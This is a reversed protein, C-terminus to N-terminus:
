SKRLLHAPVKYEDEDVAKIMQLMLRIRRIKWGVQATEAPSFDVEALASVGGSGLVAAAAAAMAAATTRRGGHPSGGGQGTHNHAHQAQKNTFACCAYCLLVIHSTNVRESTCWAADTCIRVCRPMYVTERIGIGAAHTNVLFLSEADFTVNRMQGTLM